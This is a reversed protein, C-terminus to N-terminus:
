FPVKDHRAQWLLSSLRAADRMDCEWVEVLRLGALAYAKRKRADKERVRAQTPYLSIAPRCRKCAHYWCGNAEVATKTAAHYFDATFRGAVRVRREFGPLFPALSDELRSYGKRNNARADTILKLWLERHTHAPSNMGRKSAAIKERVAPTFKVKSAPNHGHVYSYRRSSPIRGCGCACVSLPLADRANM